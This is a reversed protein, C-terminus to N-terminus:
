SKAMTTGSWSDGSGTREDGSAVGSPYMSTSSGEIAEGVHLLLCTRDLARALEMAHAEVSTALDDFALAVLLPKSM